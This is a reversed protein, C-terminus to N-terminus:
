CCGRTGMQCSGCLTGDPSCKTATLAITATVIACGWGTGGAVLDMDDESLEVVGAPHDPVSSAVRTHPAKWATTSTTSSASLTM